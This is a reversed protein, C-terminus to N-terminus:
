GPSSGTYARGKWDVSKTVLVIPPFILVYLYFYLEFIPMSRLLSLARFRVLSPLVLVTDALFKLLFMQLTLGLPGFILGFLLGIHFAYLLAFTALTIADMGRGGTFWRKKQRYLQGWQTCPDSQVLTGPDMPYVARFKTRTVVARFLAYDETVSFPIGRFGGVQEYVSRRICLNTGVATLPFGIKVAGAATTFLGFWDLAQIRAFVGRGQLHTFGAVIGVGADAFYAVTDGAWTEAVRCDADTFLVIESSVQDMGYALASPKGRLPPQPDGAAILRCRPDRAARERVIEATRDTSHDDVILIELLGVPYQLRLLSDLCSGINHEENRAAVVVTVSPRYGPDRAYRARQAAVAFLVVLVSYVLALLLFLTDPM